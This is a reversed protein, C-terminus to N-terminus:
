SKSDWPPALVKQEEDTPARVILENAEPEYRTVVWGNRAFINVWVKPLVLVWSQHLKVLRHAEFIHGDEAIYNARPLRLMM